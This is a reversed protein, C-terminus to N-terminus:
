HKFGIYAGIQWSDANLFGESVSTFLDFRVGVELKKNSYVNGSLSGLFGFLNENSHFGREIDYQGYQGDGLTGYSNIVKHYLGGIDIKFSQYNFPQVGLSVSTAFSTLHDFGARSAFGSSIRPSVSFVKNLRQVYEGYISVGYLDGAGFFSFNTGMRAVNMRSKNVQANANAACFLAVCMLLLKM